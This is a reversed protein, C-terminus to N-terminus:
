CNVIQFSEEKTVTQQKEKAKRKAATIL